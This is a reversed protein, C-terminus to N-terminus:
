REYKLHMYIGYVIHLVGFGIAWFLLGFGIYWSSVLGLVIELLGLYKVENYTFKSANILALGYFVLTVPAILGILGKSFIILIFIGGTFLPIAMSIAMRKATATWLKEGNRTAKRYSLFIATGVALILIALAIAFLKIVSASLQQRALTDYIIEDPNFYFIEYAIYAGALAYIGALVGSLGTLSLFKTSREMMSRIESLDQIYEQETKM